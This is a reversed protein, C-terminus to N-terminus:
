PTSDVFSFPLYFLSLGRLRLLDVAARPQRVQRRALRLQPAIFNFVGMTALLAAGTVATFRSGHLGSHSPHRDPRQDLRRLCLLHRRPALLGPLARRRAANCFALVVPNGKPAVTPKPEGTEGYPMLGVDSPRDRLVLAVLPLVVCVVAAISLVTTRWGYAETINAMVPLFLLQGTSAGGSLHRHRARAAGHVV